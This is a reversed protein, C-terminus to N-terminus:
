GDEWRGPDRAAKQNFVIKRVTGLKVPKGDITLEADAVSGTISATGFRATLELPKPGTAIVPVVTAIWEGNVNKMPFERPKEDGAQLILKVSPEPANPVFSIIRARFDLPKDLTLPTLDPASFTVEPTRLFREVQNVPIAQNIGARGGAIGSVVVGIVKGNDDLVPGGSNGFTLAVDIQIHQLQGDKQRLSTISGSNVSIAPYEKKDLALAKGLPFGCAVVEALETLNDSSGLALSPLDKVGDVRLLALDSEKDVRVVKAKLVKQSEVAPNLVLTIEAREAGRVVHENTVFLGSPHVCFATGTGRGPVEVFVTAAKGRKAIEVKTPKDARCAAPLALAFM